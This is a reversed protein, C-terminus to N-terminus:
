FTKSKKDFEFNDALKCPIKNESLKKKLNTISTIENEDIIKQIKEIDM